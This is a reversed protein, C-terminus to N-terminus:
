EVVQLDHSLNCFNMYGDETVVGYDELRAGDEGALYVGPEVTVVSGAELAKDYRPSLLPLEHVDLGVGHGLSHGMKGSFGADSLVKEALEHMRKGSVGARLERAVTENATRVAEYIRLQQESPAGMCVTRTTDSCYGDVRAGFDFVVFDGRALERESPVAHPNASNPGSAVINAFALEDAGHTRMQFELELSVQKETMGCCLADLVHVFAEQAIAQARKMCALEEPEKVARLTQIDGERVILRAAPLAQELKRYLSVPTSADVCVSGEQLDCATLADAVFQAIHAPEDHVRWIGEDRAVARMATAYRSDTHIIAEHATLVATHAQESDFVRAFGTLWMLDSTARVVIADIGQEELFARTRACRQEAKM